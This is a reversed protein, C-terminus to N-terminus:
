DGQQIGAIAVLNRYREIESKTFAVMEEPTAPWIATGTKNMAAVFEPDKLAETVAANLKQVIEPPTHAPAYFAFWPVIVFDRYGLEVMTPVNPLTSLREPGTVALVRVSNREIAPQLALYPYFMIKIDGRDIDGLAQPVSTYAVHQSGVKQLNEFYAGALHSSTGKGSSAYNLQQPHAKAWAVLEAVSRVPLTASVVLVLPTSVARAVGVFDNVPDYPLDKYIHPAVVMTQNYAFVLTYGDPAARAVAATGVLGAGGPRNDVVITQGLLQSARASIQRLYLDGAAGAGITIVARIPRSPFADQAMARGALLPASALGLSFARRTTDNM